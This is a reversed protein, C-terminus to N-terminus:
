FGSLKVCKYSKWRNNLTVAKFNWRGGPELDIIHDSASGVQAGSGDYLNYRIEVFGLKHDRHNVVTGTIQGSFDGYVGKETKRLLVLGNVEYEEEARRAAEREAAGMAAQEAAYAADTERAADAAAKSVPDPPYEAPVANPKSPLSLRPVVLPAPAVPQPPVKRENVFGDDLLIRADKAAQTDPYKAIVDRFKRKATEVTKFLRAV